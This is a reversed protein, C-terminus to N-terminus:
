KKFLGQMSDCIKGSCTSKGGYEMNNMTITFEGNTREITVGSGSLTYTFNKTTFVSNSTWTGDSLIVDLDGKRSPTQSPYATLFRNQSEIITKGITMAEAARSKEVAKRYQPLAISTLIGVIVVVILLEILTFGKM